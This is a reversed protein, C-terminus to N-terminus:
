QLHQCNGEYNIQTFMKDFGFDQLLQDVLCFMLVYSYSYKNPTLTM